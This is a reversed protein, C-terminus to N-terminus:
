GAGGGCKLGDREMRQRYAEVAQPGTVLDARDREWNDPRLRLLWGEGYPDRNVVSPDSKVLANVMVVEGSVPAPVSGVWKGSELTGASKNKEVRRGAPKPSVVIIKGALNQAVDTIGVTVTGDPEPRAWVHREVNYWLDEPVNCGLVQAM